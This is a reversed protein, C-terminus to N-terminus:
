KGEIARIATVKAHFIQSFLLEPVVKEMGSLFYVVLFLLGKKNV